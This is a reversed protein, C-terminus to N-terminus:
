ATQNSFMLVPAVEISERAQWVEAKEKTWTKALLIAYEKNDQSSKVVDDVVVLFKTM